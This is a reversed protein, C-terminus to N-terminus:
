VHRAEDLGEPVGQANELARGGELNTLLYSYGSWELTSSEHLRNWGTGKYSKSGKFERFLNSMPDLSEEFPTSSENGNTCVVLCELDKSCLGSRKVEGELLTKLNQRLLDSCSPWVTFDVSNRSGM